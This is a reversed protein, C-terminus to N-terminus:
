HCLMEIAVARHKRKISVSHDIAAVDSDAAEAATAADV